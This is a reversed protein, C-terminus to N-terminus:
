GNKLNSHKIIDFMKIKNQNPNNGNTLQGPTMSESNGLNITMKTATLTQLKIISNLLLNFM